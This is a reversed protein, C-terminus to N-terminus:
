RPFNRFYICWLFTVLDGFGFTIRQSYVRISENSDMLKLPSHTGLMFLYSRKYLMHLHNRQVVQLNNRMKTCM